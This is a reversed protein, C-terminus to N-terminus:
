SSNIKRIKLTVQLKAMYKPSGIIVPDNGDVKTHPEIMENFFDIWNINGSYYLFVTYM